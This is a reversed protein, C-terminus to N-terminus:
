GSSVAVVVQVLQKITCCNLGTFPAFQASKSLLVLNEPFDVCPMLNMKLHAAMAFKVKSLRFPVSNSNM